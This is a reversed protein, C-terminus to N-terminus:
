PHIPLMIQPVCQFFLLICVILAGYIYFKEVGMRHHYTIWELVDDEDRMMLCIAAKTRRRHGNTSKYEFLSIRVFFTLLALLPLVGILMRCMSCRGSVPAASDGQTRELLQEEQEPHM